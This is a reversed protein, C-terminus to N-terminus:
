DAASAATFATMLATVEASPPSHGKFDAGVTMSVTTIQGADDIMSLIFGGEVADLTLKSRSTADPGTQIFTKLTLRRPRADRNIAHLVPWSPVAGFWEELHTGEYVHIFNYRKSTSSGYYFVVVNHAPVNFSAEDQWLM